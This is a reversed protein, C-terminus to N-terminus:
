WLQTDLGPHPEVRGLLSGPHGAPEGGARGLGHDLVVGRQQLQMSGADDASGIFNGMGWTAKGFNDFIM